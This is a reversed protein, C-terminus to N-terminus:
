ERVQYGLKQLTWKAAERVEPQPDNLLPLIQPIAEKVGLWAISRIAYARVIWEPDKLCGITLKIAEERQKLDHRAERLAAIAEVRVYKNPDSISKRLIEMERETFPRQKGVTSLSLLFQIKPWVVPDKTLPGEKREPLLSKWGFGLRFIFFAFVALLATAMWLFWYRKM